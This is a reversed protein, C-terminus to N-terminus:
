LISIVVRKDTFDKIGADIITGKDFSDLHSKRLPSKIKHKNYFDQMLIYFTSNNDDKLKFIWDKENSFFNCETITLKM